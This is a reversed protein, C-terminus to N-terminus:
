LFSSYRAEGMQCCPYGSYRACAPGIPPLIVGLQALALALEGLPLGMVSAFCGELREVPSFPQDQIGYAGAKDLPAGTAVYAAIEVDTYSRM